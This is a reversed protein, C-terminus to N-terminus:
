GRMRAWEQDRQGDDDPEDADEVDTATEREAATTDTLASGDLPRQSLSWVQRADFVIYSDGQGEAENAYVIGDIGKALLLKRLAANEQGHPANFVRDYEAESISVGARRAARMVLQYDWTGLDPLRLPNRICLHFPFPTGRASAQTETGFHAGIEKSGAPMRFRKFGLEVRPEELTRARAAESWQRAQAALQADVGYQLAVDQQSTVWRELVSAVDAWREPAFGLRKGLAQLEKRAQPDGPQMVAPVHVVETTGHYVVLPRGQRDVLCSGAIFRAFELQAPLPTSPTAM